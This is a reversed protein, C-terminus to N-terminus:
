ADDTDLDAAPRRLTTFFIELTYLVLFAAGVPIASYAWAMSVGLAPATQALGRTTLEVGKVLLIAFFLLSVGAAALLAARKARDPLQKVFVGIAAHAGRRLAVAAGLFTTWIFLYRIMEEPFALSSEIVFRFFVTAVQLAFMVVFGTVCLILLLRESANLLREPPTM